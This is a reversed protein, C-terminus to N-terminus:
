LLDLFEAQGSEEDVSVYTTPGPNMTPHREPPRPGVYKFGILWGGHFVNDEEPAFHTVQCVDGFNRQHERMFKTAIAVADQETIRM